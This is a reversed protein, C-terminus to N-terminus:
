EPSAGSSSTLALLAALLLLTGGAAFYAPLTVIGAVGGAAMVLGPITPNRWAMIAGLIGVMAWAMGVLTRSVEINEDKIVLVFDLGNVTIAVLIGAFGVLGGSVGLFRATKERDKILERTSLM